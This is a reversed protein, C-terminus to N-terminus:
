NAKQEAEIYSNTFKAYQRSLEIKNHDRLKGLDETVKNFLMDLLTEDREEENVPLINALSDEVSSEDEDAEESVDGRADERLKDKILRLNQKFM